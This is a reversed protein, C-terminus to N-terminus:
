RDLELVVLREFPFSREAVTRAVFGSRNARDRVADLGTLTSVLLYARGEPRLVRGLDALFPDVVRRGDPGGSLAVALWDSREDDAPTPLYPPNFAIVDAADAAIPDLVNARVVPLGRERARECAHPNLDTTVVRGARDAVSAAVEGTGTGVELFDEGAGLYEDLTDALLRSDEAPDYVDPLDDPRM